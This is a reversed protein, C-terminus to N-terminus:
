GGPKSRRCGSPESGSWVACRPRSTTPKLTSTYAARTIWRKFRSRWAMSRIKWDRYLEGESGPLERAPMGLAISWFEAAASLDDTRCDIIFGSLKSKHM